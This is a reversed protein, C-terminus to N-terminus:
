ENSARAAHRRHAALALAAAGFLLAFTAPEPVASAGVVAFYESRSLQGYFESDILPVPDDGPSLLNFAILDRENSSVEDMLLLTGDIVEVAAPRLLGAHDIFATNLDTGDLNASMINASTADAIFLRSANVAIDELNTGNDFFIETATALDGFSRTLVRTNGSLYFLGTANAELGTFSGATTTLQTINSGDLDASFLNLSFVDDPTSELWYLTNGQRAISEVRERGSFVTTFDDGDLNSSYLSGGFDGWYLRDGHSTITTPESGSANSDRILQYSALQDLDAEDVVSGTNVAVNGLETASVSFVAQDDFLSSAFYVWPPNGSQAHTM